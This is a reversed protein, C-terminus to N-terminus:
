VFMHTIRGISSNKLINAIPPPLLDADDDSGLAAVVSNAKAKAKAGDVTSIREIRRSSKFNGNTSGLIKRMELCLNRLADDLVPPHDVVTGDTVELVAGDVLKVRHPACVLERM